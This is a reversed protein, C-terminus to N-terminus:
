LTLKKNFISLDTILIKPAFLNTKLRPNKLFKQVLNRNKDMIQGSNKALIEITPCFNSKQFFNQNIFLNEIKGM